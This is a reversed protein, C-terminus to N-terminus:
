LKQSIDSINKLFIDPTQLTEGLLSLACGIECRMEKKCGEKNCSKRCSIRKRDDLRKM